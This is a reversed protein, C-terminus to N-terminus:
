PHFSNFPPAAISMSDLELSRRAGYERLFTFPLPERPALADGRRRERGATATHREPRPRMLRPGRAGRDVAPPPCGVRGDPGRHSPPSGVRLHGGPGGVRPSGALPPAPHVAVGGDEMPVERVAHEGRGRDGDAEAAGL